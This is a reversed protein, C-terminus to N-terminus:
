QADLWAGLKAWDKELIPRMGENRIGYSPHVMPWLTLEVNSQRHLVTQPKGSIKLISFDQKGTLAKYAVAGVAIVVPPSGVASWELQVIDRAYEIEEDTPTRNGPPRFHVTNTLWCNPESESLGPRPSTFLGAVAMLDRLARGAPGVFPRRAMVEQAGPAEGLVFATPPYGDGEGPVYIENLDPFCTRYHLARDKM